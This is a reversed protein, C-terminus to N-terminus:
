PQSELREILILPVQLRVPTPGIESHCMILESLRVFPLSTSIHDM